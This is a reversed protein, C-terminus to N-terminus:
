SSLVWILDFVMLQFFYFSFFVFLIWTELVDCSFVQLAGVWFGIIVYVFYDSM